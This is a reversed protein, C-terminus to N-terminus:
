RIKQEAMQGWRQYAFVRTVFNERLRPGQLRGEEEVPLHPFRQMLAAAFLGQGSRNPVGNTSYLRVREM